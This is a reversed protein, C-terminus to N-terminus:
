KKSGRSKGLAYGAGFVAAIMLIEWFYWAPSGYAAAKGGFLYGLGFVAVALAATLLLLGVIVATM